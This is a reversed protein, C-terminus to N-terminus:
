QNQQLNELYQALNGAHLQLMIADTESMLHITKGRICYPEKILRELQLLHKPLIQHSLKVEVYKCGCYKKTWDLCTKTMRVSDHNTPNVWWTYEVGEFNEPNPYGSLKIFQQQYDHQRSM